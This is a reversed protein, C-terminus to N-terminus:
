SAVTAPLRPGYWVLRGIQFGLLLLYLKLPRIM